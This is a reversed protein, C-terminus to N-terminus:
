EAEDGSPDTAVVELAPAGAEGDAAEDVEDALPEPEGPVIKDAAIEEFAISLPKRASSTVQPPVVSGLGEGLQGFYSNIQRARKSALTVLHFKSGARELLDEVRPNMMTDHEWAM